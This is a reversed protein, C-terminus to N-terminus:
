NKDGQGYIKTEGKVAKGSVDLCVLWGGKLDSPAKKMTSESLDDGSNRCYIKGNALVPASYCWSDVVKIRALETYKESDEKALILEGFITLILLKGDSLTLGGSIKKQVWKAKGTEFDSCSLSFDDKYKPLRGWNGKTGYIFGKSLVPTSLQELQKFGCVEKLEKGTDPIEFVSSDKLGKARGTAGSIVLLKNGEVIIDATNRHHPWDQEFLLKGDKASVGVIKKVGLVVLAPGSKHEFYVPSSYAARDDGGSWLKKGTKKNFSVLLNGPGGATVIVQEGVILPSCALGYTDTKIINEYKWILKGTSARLCFLHGSRNNVYLYEGDVTPTGTPGPWPWQKLGQKMAPLEYPYKWLEEGTVANLCLIVTKEGEMGETYLKDGAVAVSSFGCGM